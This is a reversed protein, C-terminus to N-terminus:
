RLRANHYSQRQTSISSRVRRVSSPVRHILTVLVSYILGNVECKLNGKRRSVVLDMLPVVMNGKPVGPSQDYGGAQREALVESVSKATGNGLKRRKKIHLLLGDELDTVASRLLDDTIAQRDRHRVHRVRRRPTKPPFPDPNRPSSSRTLSLTTPHLRDNHLVNRARQKALLAVFHCDILPTQPQRDDTAAVAVNEPKTSNQVNDPMNHPIPLSNLSSSLVRTLCGIHGPPRWGLKTDALAGRQRNGETSSIM